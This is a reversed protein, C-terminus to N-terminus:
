IGPNFHEKILGIKYDFYKKLRMSFFFDLIRHGWIVEISYEGNYIKRKLKSKSFYFIFACTSKLDMSM